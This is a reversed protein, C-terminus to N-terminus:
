GQTKGQRYAAPTLGTHRRFYRVMFSQDSFHFRQAIQKVSETSARLSLKLQLITYEDILQKPSKGTKAETIVSLYKRTICLRSAYYSVERSSIYDQELLRMFRGFLEDTRKSTTNRGALDPHRLLYDHFGLFFTQLQHLLVQRLVECQPLSFYYGLIQFMPEVQGSVVEPKDCIRWERLTDYVADEINMSAERLLDSGYSLLEADADPSLSEWQILDAPFLNLIAKGRLEYRRYNVQVSLEGGRCLLLGCCDMVQLETNVEKIKRISAM